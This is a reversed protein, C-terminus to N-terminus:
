EAGEGAGAAVEARHVPSLPHFAHCDMCHLPVLGRQRHDGHCAVCADVDPMLVDSSATSTDAAHCLLCAADGSADRQTLHARHDFRAATFFDPTLRVPVVQYRALLDPTDHTVVEHCTVCGRRTFQTEAERATRDRACLYAPGDCRDADAGRDPLRRRARDPEGVDPDAYLRMFHGEMTLLVESPDGHPLERDPAQRDFKLDHCDRCDREMSIPEFHENDPQLRHCDACALAAGTDMTQVREPDLHLDHPFKLNSRDVAEPLPVSQRYWEYTLGTGREEATSVLLDAAFAPHTALTFGRASALRNDPWDPMAHCDTCLADDSITLHMPTNHEKHCSACRTTDLGVHAALDAAAHDTTQQHCALCQVDQVRQFPKVHCARCDDGIAVGHAPHLPGSSWIRDSLPAPLREAPILWPVILGLTLVLVALVWAPRRRSLWTQDLATVYAGELDAPTVSRAPVLSIAADFGAPAAEVGVTAGALEFADGVALNATRKAEGNIRVTNSGFCRVRIGGASAQLEGHQRAVGRGLIQLACDPASGFTLTPGSFERDYVTAGAAGHTTERILVNV